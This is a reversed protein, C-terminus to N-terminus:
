DFYIIRTGGGGFRPNVVNTYISGFTYSIGFSVFYSYNTALMKRRLLVEEQTANKKPLSLQDHIRSISGYIRFTLGGFLRIRLENYLELRNKSLDHLYQSGSLSTETSGWPQQLSLTVSLEHNLLSEQTKDFITEEYYRVNVGRIGYNFLLMKHTSQSYPFLNYEVAPGLMFGHKTNQYTSSIYNGRIGASWHEGLSRVVLSSFGDGARKSVIETQGFSFRDESHNGWLSFRIKWDPTVRSASASGYLSLSKRSREGNAFTNLSISFVWYNWKDKVKTTKAEKAYRIKLKEAVPTYAVYRVLGMKLAKVLAKRREDSTATKKTVVKLTDNKGEFNKRGIFTLTYERGGSGTFQLTILVHVQADYRDRVYNVFPIETRIYDLDCFDCDIYVKPAKEMLESSQAVASNATVLVLLAVAFIWLNRAQAKM